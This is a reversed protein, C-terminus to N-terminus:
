PRTLLSVAEHLAERMLDRDMDPDRTERLKVGGVLCQLMLARRRAQDAPMKEKGVGGRELWHFLRDSIVGDVNDLVQGIRPDRTGEAIIELLLVPRIGRECRSEAYHSAIEDALDVDREPQMDRRMLELQHEVIALIIASKNEFYRYILGPSMGATEAITAMSAAHFGHEIFCQEAAALIRGRQAEARESSRAQGQPDAM